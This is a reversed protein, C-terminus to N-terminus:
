LTQQSSSIGLRSCPFKSASRFQRRHSESWRDRCTRFSSPLLWAGSLPFNRASIAMSISLSKSYDWWRAHFLWDLLAGGILEVTTALVTWAIFLTLLPMDGPSIGKRAAAEDVLAFISLVGFGYKPCVSGCLFGRNIIKVVSVVHFAVEIVWGLFSYIPFVM